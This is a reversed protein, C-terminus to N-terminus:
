VPSDDGDTDDGDTDDDDTDDADTDDDNTDDADTDDAVDDDDNTDEVVELSEFDMYLNQQEGDENTYTFSGDENPTIAFQSDERDADDGGEVDGGETDGGEVDGGEADGGEADGGEADGGEADGGETDGGETDGGEADGGEADGGETDDATEEVDLSPILDISLDDSTGDGDYDEGAGDLTITVSGDTKVTVDEVGPISELADEFEKPSQLTPFVVQQTGDLYVVVIREDIGPEGEIYLGPEMGEPAPTVVPDFVVMLTLDGEEEGGPIFLSTEGNEGIEVESGEPLVEVLGEPDKPAPNVPMQMGGKLTLVYQGTKENFSVGPPADEPGQEMDDPDPLLALEAGVEPNEAIIVGTEQQEVTYGTGALAENMGTQADGSEETSGGLGFGMTLDPVNVMVVGVLTIDKPRLVIPAGFRRKIGHRQGIVWGKGKPLLPMLVELLAPDLNALVKALDDEPMNGFEEPDVEALQEPGFAQIAEDDFGGFQDRKVGKFAKKPMKKIHGPKLGKLAKKDASGIQEPTFGEAADEPLAEFEDSGFAAIIHAPLEALKNPDFSPVDDPNVGLKMLKKNPKKPKQPRKGPKGPGGVKGPKLKGPKKGKDPKADDTPKDGSPGAPKDAPKDPKGAPKDAPKDPKGAPKDAPKDPKGAPKDAPKDPKGAPKDAPKDPKGAPKDAPKDPKGAPKDAPKDPKGAPKDAPKDPKGAPKDGSSGAADPNESILVPEPKEEGASPGAAPKDGDPAPKDGSPGAAPKDGDQAPKDGSPGGAAKDGGPAPKDGSPGGAAKDGGPAPKDGSPGGAPKDGGPAPKDGSPGGAGPGGAPGDEKKRLDSSLYNATAGSNAASLGSEALVAANGGLLALSIAISLTTKKM